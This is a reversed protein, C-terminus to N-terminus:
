KTCEEDDRWKGCLDILRHLDITSVDHSLM